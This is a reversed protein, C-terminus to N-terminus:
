RLTVQVRVVGGEDVEVAARERRSGFRVSLEVHGPEVGRFVRRGRGDVYGDLRQVGDELEVWPVRSPQTVEVQAFPLPDGDADVVLVDVAGGAAEAVDVDATEHAVVAAKVDIARDFRRLM